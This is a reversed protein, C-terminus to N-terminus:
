VVPLKGVERPFSFVHGKQKRNWKGGMMELVKNVALYMKRDLQGSNMTLLTDDVDAASLIALVDQPVNKNVAM